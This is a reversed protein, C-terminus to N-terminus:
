NQSVSSILRKFLLRYSGRYFYWYARRLRYIYKLCLGLFTYKYKLKYRTAIYKHELMAASNNPLTKQSSHRRFVALPINHIRHFPMTCLRSFEILMQYDMTYHLNTDFGPFDAHLCSKWFFAQANLHFGEYVLHHYSFDFAHFYDIYNNHEDISIWDGFVVHVSPNHDFATIANIFSNPLFLDDSNLWCFIDGTAHSFGKNLADSQGLDPESCFYAIHSIYKDIIM